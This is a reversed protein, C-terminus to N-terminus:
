LSRHPPILAGTLLRRHSASIAAPVAAASVPQPWSRPPEVVAPAPRVRAGVEATVGVEAVMDVEAVMGVEAGNVPGAVPGFVGIGAAARV